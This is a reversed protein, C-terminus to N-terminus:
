GVWVPHVGLLSLRIVIESAEPVAMV